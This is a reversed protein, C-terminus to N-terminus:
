VHNTLACDAHCTCVAHPKPKHDLTRQLRNVDALSAQLRAKVSRLEDRAIQLRLSADRHDICYFITLRLDGDEWSRDPQSRVGIRCGCVEVKIEIM